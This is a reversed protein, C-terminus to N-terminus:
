TRHSVNTFKVSHVGWTQKANYIKNYISGEWYKNQWQVQIIDTNTNINQPM